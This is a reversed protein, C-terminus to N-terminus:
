PLAFIRRLIREIKPEGLDYARSGSEGQPPACTQNWLFLGALADPNAQWPSLAVALARLLEAQAILDADFGAAFDPVPKSSM